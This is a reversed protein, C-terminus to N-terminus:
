TYSTNQPITSNAAYDLKYAKLFHYTRTSTTPFLLELLLYSQKYSSSTGLHIAEMSISSLFVIQEDKDLSVTDGPPLLVNIKTDIAEYESGSYFRVSYSAM